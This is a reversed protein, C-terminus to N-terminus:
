FNRAEIKIYNYLLTGFIKTYGLSHLVVRVEEIQKDLGGIDGYQDTPREDLEM